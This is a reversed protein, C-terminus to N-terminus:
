GKVAHGTALQTRVRERERQAWASEDSSHKAEWRSTDEPPNADWSEGRGGGLGHALNHACHFSIITFAVSIPDM